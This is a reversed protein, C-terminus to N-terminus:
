AARDELYAYCDRIEQPIDALTPHEYDDWSESCKLGDKLKPEVCKALETYDGSGTSNKHEAYWVNRVDVSTRIASPCESYATKALMLFLELDAWTCGSRRAASAAVHVHFVYIGHRVVVWSPAMGQEKGEKVGAVNTRASYDLAVPEVTMGPAVTIGGSGKSRNGEELNTGGFWRCDVYHKGLPGAKAQAMLQKFDRGEQIAIDYRAPDLPPVFLASYEKWVPGGKDVIQDRIKRNFSQPSAWSRRSSPVVRPGGDMVSQNIGSMWCDAIVWVDVRKDIIDLLGHRTLIESQLRKEQKETM